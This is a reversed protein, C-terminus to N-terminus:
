SWKGQGSSVAESQSVNDAISERIGGNLRLLFFGYTIERTSASDCRRKWTTSDSHRDWKLASAERGATLCELALGVLM